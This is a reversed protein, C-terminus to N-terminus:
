WNIFASLIADTNSCESLEIMKEQDMFEKFDQPEDLIQIGELDVDNYFKLLNESLGIVRETTLNTM